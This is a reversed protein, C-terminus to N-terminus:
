KKIEKGKWTVGYEDYIAHLRGLTFEGLFDISDMLWNGEDDQYELDLRAEEVAKYVKDLAEKATKRAIWEDRNKREKKKSTTMCVRFCVDHVSKLPVAGLTDEQELYDLLDNVGLGDYGANMAALMKEALGEFLREVYSFPVFGKNEMGKEAEDKEVLKGDEIQDEISSLRSFMAMVTLMAERVDASVNSAFLTKVEEGMENIAGRKTMREYPM